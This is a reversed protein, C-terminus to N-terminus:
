FDVGGHQRLVEVVLLAGILRGGDDCPMLVDSGGDPSRGGDIHCECNVCILWKQRHRSTCLCCCGWFVHYMVRM